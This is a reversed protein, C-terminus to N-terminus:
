LESLISFAICHLKVQLLAIKKLLVWTVVGLFLFAAFSRYFAFFQAAGYQHSVLLFGGDRLCFLGLLLLIKIAM